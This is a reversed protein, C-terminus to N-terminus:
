EDAPKLAEKTVSHGRDVLLKMAQAKRLMLRDGLEVLSELETYEESSITGRSNKDMLVRMRAQRVAAMQERAITWLADDSLYQLARLEAQEDDPLYSFESDFAQSLQRDIVADIPEARETAIQQARNYVTESIRVTYDSM